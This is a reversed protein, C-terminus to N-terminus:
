YKKHTMTLEIFYRYLLLIGAALVGALHAETAVRVGILEAVNESNYWHSQEWLVKGLVGILLASGTQDGSRVLGIAILVTLGHLADSLGVYWHLQPYGLTLILSSLLSLPLLSFLLQGIQALRHGLWFLLILAASNMALHASNNHIFHGSLWRWYEGNIPNQYALQETSFLCQLAILLAIIASLIGLALAPINHDM